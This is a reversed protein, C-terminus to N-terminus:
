STYIQPQQIPYVPSQLVLESGAYFYNKVVTASTNGLFVLGDDCCNTSKRKRQTTTSVSSEHRCLAFNSITAFNWTLPKTAVSCQRACLDWKLSGYLLWQAGYPVVSGKGSLTTCTGRAWISPSLHTICSTFSVKKHRSRHDPKIPITTLSVVSSCDTSTAAISYVQSNLARHYQCASHTQM